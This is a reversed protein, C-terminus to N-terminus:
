AINMLNEYEQEAVGYYGGADKVLGARNIITIKGRSSRIYGKGELVHLTETVWPRRVGLMVSMFEHTLFLDNGNTRDHVMLLWRALRTEANARGNILSTTASQIIVSQIYLLLRRRLTDSSDVAASLKDTSIRYGMGELQIYVPLPSLTTGLIISSGTMGERGAISVEIDKGGPTKAVTSAIGTELFIAYKIEEGPTQIVDRLKYRVLELDPALLQYDEPELRALLRNQVTFQNINM